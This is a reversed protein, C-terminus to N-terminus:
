VPPLIVHTSINANGLTNLMGLLRQVIIESKCVINRVIPEVLKLYTERGIACASGLWQPKIDRATYSHM